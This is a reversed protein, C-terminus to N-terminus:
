QSLPIVVLDVGVELTAPLSSSRTATDDTSSTPSSSTASRARCRMRGTLVRSDTVQPALGVQGYLAWIGLGNGVSGDEKVKLSDFDIAGKPPFMDAASSATFVVRARQGHVLKAQQLAPLLRMTLLWHGVV